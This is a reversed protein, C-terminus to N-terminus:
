NADMKVDACNEKIDDAFAAREFALTYYDDCYPDYPVEYYKLWYYCADVVNGANRIYSDLRAYDDSDLLYVVFAAQMKPDGINFKYGEGEGGPGFWNEAFLYLEEKKVYATYQAYGYGGDRNVWQDYENYYGNSMNDNRSEAFDKKDISKKNVKETYTEDDIDWIDNNYDELNHAEFRSEARINCMVGITATENGDFHEMLLKYLYQEETLEVLKDYKKESFSAASEEMPIDEIIEEKKLKSGPLMLEVMFFMLVIFIIGAIFLIIKRRRYSFNKDKLNRDIINQLKQKEDEFFSLIRNRKRKRKDNVSSRHRQRIEDQKKRHTSIFEDTKKTRQEFKQLRQEDGKIYKEEIKKRREAIREDYMQRHRNLVEENRKRLAELKEDNSKLFKEQREVTKNSKDIIKQYTTNEKEVRNIKKSSNNDISM